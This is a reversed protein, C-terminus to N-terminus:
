DDILLLRFSCGAEGTTGDAKSSIKVTAQAPIQLSTIDLTGTTSAESTVYDQFHFVGKNLARTDRFCEARLYFDIRKKLGSAHWNLLYGKKGNPITYRSSLSQNGGAAIYEYTTAGTTDRLSINGAAVTGSGVTAAAMWQIEQIDTPVTDVPTVGDMIITTSQQDYSTDLYVLKLTQIGTGASADAADDSVVEMQIGGLVPLVVVAPVLSMDGLATTEVNAEHRGPMVIIEYGPVNGMAVDILFNNVPVPNLTTHVNGHEDRLRTM